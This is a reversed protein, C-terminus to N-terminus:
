RGTRLKRAFCYLVTRNEQSTVNIEEDAFGARLFLDRLENETRYVLFWDIAWEMLGASPNNKKEGYNAIVLVGEKKLIKRLNKILRVAVKKNFYDFLGSSYVLDYKYGIDKQIDNKLALRILDKKFFNVNKYKALGKQAYEIAKKEFDYCDFFVNAYAERSATKLLEKIERATGSGLNMIRIQRAKGQEINDSIINKLDQKRQRTARSAAMQLFYHDWLADYGSSRLQNKYINEIIQYDGPYGLPKEYSWRPYEGHLFHVRYRKAFIQRFRKVKEKDKELEYKELLMLQLSIRDLTEKFTKKFRPWEEPEKKLHTIIKNETEKYRKIDELLRM